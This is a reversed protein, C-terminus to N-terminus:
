TDERYMWIISYNIYRDSSEPVEEISCRWISPWPLMWILNSLWSPIIGTHNLKSPFYLVQLNSLAIMNGTYLSLTLYFHFWNTSCTVKPFTEWPLYQICIIQYWNCFILFYHFIEPPSLSDFGLFEYYISLFCFHYMCLCTVACYLHMAIYSQVVCSEGWFYLYKSHVILLPSLGLYNVAVLPSVPCIYIHFCFWVIM